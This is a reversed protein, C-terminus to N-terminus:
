MFIYKTFQVGSLLKHLLTHELTNQLFAKSHVKNTFNMRAYKKCLVDPHLIGLSVSSRVNTLKALKTLKTFHIEMFTSYKDWKILEFLNFLTTWNKAYFKEVKEILFVKKYYVWKM